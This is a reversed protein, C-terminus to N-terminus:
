IHKLTEQILVTTLDDQEKSSWNVLGTYFKDVVHGQKIINDCVITEVEKKDFNDTYIDTNIVQNGKKDEAVFKARFKYGKFEKLSYRFGNKIKVMIIM